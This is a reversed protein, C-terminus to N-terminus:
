VELRMNPFQEREQELKKKKLRKIEDKRRWREVREADKAAAELACKASQNTRMKYLAPLEELVTLGQKKADYQEQFLTFIATERRERILPEELHCELGRLTHDKSEKFIGAEVSDLLLKDRVYIFEFEEKSYWVKCRDQEEVLEVFHVKTTESFALCKSRKGNKAEKKQRLM